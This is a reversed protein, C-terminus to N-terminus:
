EYLMTTKASITTNGFVYLGRYVYSVKVTLPDGPDIPAAPVTVTPQCTTALTAFTILNDACYNRVITEIQAQTLRTARYVTGARAGERSAHTLILKNHLAITYTIAGFLILLFVPLVFAFEVIANGRVGDAATRRRGVRTM